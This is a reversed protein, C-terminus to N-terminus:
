SVHIEVRTQRYIYLPLSFGSMSHQLARYPHQLDCKYGERRSDRENSICLAANQAEYHLWPRRRPTTVIDNVTGLDLDGM